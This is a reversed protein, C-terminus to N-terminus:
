GSIVGIILGLLTCTNKIFFFSTSRVETERQTGAISKIENVIDALSKEAQVVCVTYQIIQHIQPSVEQLTNKLEKLQKSSEQSEVVTKDKLKRM